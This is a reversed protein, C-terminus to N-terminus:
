LIKKGERERERGLPQFSLPFSLKQHTRAYSHKVLHGSRKIPYFFILHHHCLLLLLGVNSIQVSHGSVSTLSSPWYLRVSMKLCVAAINKHKWKIPLSICETHKSHLFFISHIIFKLEIWNFKDKRPIWRMWGEIYMCRQKNNTEIRKSLNYTKIRIFDNFLLWFFFRQFSQPCIKKENTSQIWCHHVLLCCLIRSLHGASHKSSISTALVSLYVNLFLSLSQQQETTNKRPQEVEEPWQIKKKSKKKTSSFQGFIKDKKQYCFFFYEKRLKWVVIIIKPGNFKENNVKKKRCMLDFCFAFPSLFFLSNKYFSEQIWFLKSTTPKNTM